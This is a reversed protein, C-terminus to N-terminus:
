PIACKILLRRGKHRVRPTRIGKGHTFVVRSGKVSLTPPGCRGPKESTKRSYVHMVGKVSLTRLGVKPKELTKRM